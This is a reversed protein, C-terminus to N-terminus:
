VNQNVHIPAAPVGHWTTHPPFYEAPLSCALAKLEVDHDVHTHSLLISKCGIVSNDGVRVPAFKFIRHEATHTQLLSLPELVVNNGISGLDFESVHQTGRMLVNRGVKVGMMRHIWVLVPTEVLLHNILHTSHWLNLALARRFTFFTGFAREEERFRGLLLWKLVISLTFVLLDILLLEAPLLLFVLPLSVSGISISHPLLQPLVLLIVVTLSDLLLILLVVCISSMTEWFHSCTSFGNSQQLRPVPLPSAPVGFLTTDPDFRDFAQIFSSMGVVCREPVTAGAEIVAHNGVFAAQQLRVPALEWLGHRVVWAGCVVEDTTTTHDEGM